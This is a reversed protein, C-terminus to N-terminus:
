VMLQMAETWGEIVESPTFSKTSGRRYASDFDNWHNNLSKIDDPVEVAYPTLSPTTGAFYCECPSDVTPHDEGTGRKLVKYVLSTGYRLLASM